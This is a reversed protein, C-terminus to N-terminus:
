ARPELKKTVQEQKESKIQLENVGRLGRGEATQGGATFDSPTVPHLETWVPTRDRRPPTEAGQGDESNPEPPDGRRRGGSPHRRGRGRPEEGLPLHGEVAARVGAPHQQAGPHVVDGGEQPHVRAPLRQYAAAGPLVQAPLHFSGRM